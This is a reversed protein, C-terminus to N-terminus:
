GGGPRRPNQPRGAGDPRGVASPTTAPRGGTTVDPRGVSPTELPPRRDPAQGAPNAPTTAAAAAGRALGEQMRASAEDLRPLASEPVHRRAEDLGREAQVAADALAQQARERGAAQDASGANELAAMARERGSRNADIARQIGGHAAAPLEDLLATLRADTAEWSALIKEMAVTRGTDEPPDQALGTSPIGLLLALAGAASWASRNQITM